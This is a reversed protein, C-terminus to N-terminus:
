NTGSGGNLNITQGTLWSTEESALFVVAAGVDTPTGLRGTPVAAALARTVQPDNNASNDMLGLALTNATVGTGAVEQSLHRIFGEIGSKGAGYLAVGIKLGTRGAGSSIQVIRGWGADVMDELVAHICHLSGFINIEVPGRWLAPDLQRFPRAVMDSHIGANNVLIDVPRGFAARAAAVGARVAEPDLVDFPVAVAKGGAAEIEARVAEARDPVLDNVAVAAGQAALARAAGAGMNQGAGTVLALHGDLEFM